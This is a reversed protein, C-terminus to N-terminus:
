RLEANFKAILYEMIDILISNEEPNLLVCEDTLSVILAEVEARSLELLVRKPTIGICIETSKRKM